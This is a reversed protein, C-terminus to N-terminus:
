LSLANVMKLVPLVPNEGTGPLALASIPMKVKAQTKLLGRCSGNFGSRTAITTELLVVCGM